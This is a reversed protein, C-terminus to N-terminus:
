ITENPIVKNQTGKEKNICRYRGDRYLWNVEKEFQDFHKATRIADSVSTISSIYQCYDEVLKIVDKDCRDKELGGCSLVDLVKIPEDIIFFDRLVHDMAENADRKETFFAYNIYKETEKCAEVTKQSSTKDVDYEAYELTCNDYNATNYCIGKFTNGTNKIFQTALQPIVYEEVFFSNDRGRVNPFSCVCALMFRYLNKSFIAIDNQQFLQSGDITLDYVYMKKEDYQKFRYQAIYLKEYNEIASLENFVGFVSNSLYLLPQGTISFRQNRIKYAKMFPIHFMDAKELTNDSMRGRYLLESKPVEKKDSDSIQLKNIFIDRLVEIATNINCSTWCHYVERIQLFFETIPSVEIQNIEKLPKEKNELDLVGPSVYVSSKNSIFKDVLAIQDDSGNDACMAKILDAMFFKAYEIIANEYNADIMQAERILKCQHRYTFFDSLSLKNNNANM